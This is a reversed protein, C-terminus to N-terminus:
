GFLGIQTNSEIETNSGDFVKQPRYSSSSCHQQVYEGFVVLTFLLFSVENDTIGAPRLDVGLSTIDPVADELPEQWPCLEWFEMTTLRQFITDNVNLIAM